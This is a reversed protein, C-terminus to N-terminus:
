TGEGGADLELAAILDPMPCDKCGWGGFTEVVRHGTLRAHLMMEAHEIDDAM